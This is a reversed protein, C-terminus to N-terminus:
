RSRARRRRVARSPPPPPMSRRHGPATTSSGAVMARGGYTSAAIPGGAQVRAQCADCRSFWPAADRGCDICRGATTGEITRPVLEIVRDSAAAELSDAEGSTIGGVGPHRRTFWRMIAAQASLAEAEDITAMALGGRDVLDALSHRTLLADALRALVEAHDGPDVPALALSWADDSSLRRLRQPGVVLLRDRIPAVTATRLWGADKVVAHAARSWAELADPWRHPPVSSLDGRAPGLQARTLRRYAPMAGGPGVGATPQLGRAIVRGDPKLWDLGTLWGVSGDEHLGFRGARGAIQAVEWPLLDRRETGDFKTTEAFLVARCPLNVGHGLVDTSVLVETRGAVFQEIQHRRAAVPMAGYLVGVNGGRVAHIRSALAIVAARSFAVVVSAPELRAIDVGGVLRLPGTLRETWVVELADGYAASLLPEADPAGALYLEDAGSHWLVRTWASGREPDAAWHVEDLVVVGRRAPSLMEVTCAIVPARENIREEGTVLGVQEPGLREVLRVYAENALMRLPAAYAGSGAAILAELGAYTKGSNAPGLHAVVRRPIRREPLVVADLLHAGGRRGRKPLRH